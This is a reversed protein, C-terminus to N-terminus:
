EFRGKVSFKDSNIRELWDTHSLPVVPLVSRRHYDKDIYIGSENETKFDLKFFQPTFDLGWLTIECSPPTCDDVTYIILRIPDAISTPRFRKLEFVARNRTTSLPPVGLIRSYTNILSQARKAPVMLTLHTIGYVGSPHFFWGPNTKYRLIRPLISSHYFLPIEGTAYEHNTNPARIAWYTGYKTTTRSDLKIAGLEAHLKTDYRLGSEDEALATDLRARTEAAGQNSGFGFDKIGFKHDWQLHGPLQVPEDSPSAVLELCSGDLFCIQKATVGSEDSRPSPSLTFNDTIWKPPSILTDHSVLITIRDLSIDSPKNPPNCGRLGM